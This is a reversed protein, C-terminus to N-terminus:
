QGERTRSRRFSSSRNNTTIQQLLKSSRKIFIFIRLSFLSTSLSITQALYLYHYLCYTLCHHKNLYRYLYLCHHKNMSEDVKHIQPRYNKDINVSQQKTSSEFRNFIYMITCASSVNRQSKKIIIYYMIKLLNKQDSLPCKM